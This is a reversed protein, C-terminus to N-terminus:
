VENIVSSPAHEIIVTNHTSHWDEQQFKNQVIVTVNPPLKKFPQDVIDAFIHGVKKSSVLLDAPIKSKVLIIAYYTVNETILENISKLVIEFEPTSDCGRKGYIRFWEALHRCRMTYSAWEPHSAACAVRKPMFKARLCSRKKKLLLNVYNFCLNSQSLQSTSPSNEERKISEYSPQLVSFLVYCTYCFLGVVLFKLFLKRPVSSGYM